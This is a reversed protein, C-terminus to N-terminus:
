KRDRLNQVMLMGPGDRQFQQEINGNGLIRRSHYGIIVEERPKWTRRTRGMILGGIQWMLYETREEPRLKRIFAEIPAEAREFFLSMYPKDTNYWFIIKDLGDFEKERDPWRARLKSRITGFVREM